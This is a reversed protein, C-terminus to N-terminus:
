CWGAEMRDLAATLEPYGSELLAPEGDDGTVNRIFEAEKRAESRLREVETEAEARLKQSHQHAERYQVAEALLTLLNEGQQKTVTTNACYGDKANRGLDALDKFRHRDWAFGMVPIGGLGADLPEEDDDEPLYTSGHKVFALVANYCGVCLHLKVVTEDTPPSFLLGGPEQLEGHCFACRPAIAM